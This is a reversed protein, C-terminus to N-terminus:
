GRAALEARGADGPAPQHSLAEEGEGPRCNADVFAGWDFYRGWVSRAASDGAARKWLTFYQGEHARCVRAEEPTGDGDLDARAIGDTGRNWRAESVVAIAVSAASSAGTTDVVTLDYFADEALQLQPFATACPTARRQARARLSLVSSASDPFVITIPERPALSDTALGVCWLSASDHIAVGIFPLSRAGSSTEAAERPATDSVGQGTDAPPHGEPAGGCAIAGLSLGAAALVHRVIPM